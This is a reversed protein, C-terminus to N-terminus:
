MECKSPKRSVWKLIQLLPFHRTPLTGGHAPDFAYELKTLSAEPGLLKEWVAPEGIVPFNADQESRLLSVFQRNM